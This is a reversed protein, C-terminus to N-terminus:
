GTKEQLKSAHYRISRQYASLGPDESAELTAEILVKVADATRGAAHLAIGLFVQIERFDPFHRQAAELVEVARATEGSLRLANALGILAASHDNPALGLAIAREYHKAAEESRGLMDATWALQFAIEPVNPYRQDLNVLQGLVTSVRGGHRAGVISDLESRWPPFDMIPLGFSSARLRIASGRQAENM